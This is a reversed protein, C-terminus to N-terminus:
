AARLAPESAGTALLADFMKEVASTAMNLRLALEVPVTWVMFRDAEDIVDQGIGLLRAIDGHDARLQASPEGDLRAQWVDRHIHSLVRAAEVEAFISYTQFLRQEILELIGTSAPLGDSTM